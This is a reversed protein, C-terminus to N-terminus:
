AEALMDRLSRKQRGAADFNGADLWREMAAAIRPWERDTISFWATDRNRGKVVMHQRFTGEYTFGFRLAAQRSPRNDADCKWEYRRYGLEEFIRRAMLLMAETGAPQRKLGEGYAISGVEASGNAADVRMYSATGMARGTAADLIAFPVWEPSRDEIWRIGAKFSAEDPLPGISMYTWVDPGRGSGFAAWLDRWHTKVNLGAIRVLRGEM